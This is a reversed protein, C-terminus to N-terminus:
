PNAKFKELVSANTIDNLINDLMGLIEIHLFEYETKNIPLYNGHAITNRYNLLKSDILNSKLEYNAIDIGITAMIEELITSNLNSGTKICNSESFIARESLNNKFYEVFQVHYTAKNTANFEKIKQKLSLALINANVENLNLKQYKIYALYFEAANKVFGEWHAYLLVVACRLATPLKKPNATIVDNYLNSLEKKRWGLDATLCDQLEEKTRVKM